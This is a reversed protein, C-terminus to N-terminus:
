GGLAVCQELALLAIGISGCGVKLILRLTYHFHWANRIVRLRKDVRKEEYAKSLSYMGM